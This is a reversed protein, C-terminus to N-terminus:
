PTPETDQVSFTIDLTLNTLEAVTGLTYTVSGTISGDNAGEKAAIKDGKALTCTASVNAATGITPAASVWVDFPNGNTVTFNVTVTENVVDFGGAITVALTDNGDTLEQTVNGSAALDVGGLDGYDFSVFNIKVLPDPNASSFKGKVALDDTFQAYGVGLATIVVALFLAIISRRKKM